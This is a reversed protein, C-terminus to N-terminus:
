ENTADEVEGDLIGSEADLTLAKDLLRLAAAQLGDVFQHEDIEFDEGAAPAFLKPDRNVPDALAARMAPTDFARPDKKM